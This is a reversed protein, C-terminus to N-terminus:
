FLYFIISILGADPVTISVGELDTMLPVNISEFELVGRLYDYDEEGNKLEGQM